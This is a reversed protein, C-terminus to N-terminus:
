LFWTFTSLLLWEAARPVTPLTTVSQAIAFLGLATVAAVYRSLVRTDRDAAHADTPATATASM